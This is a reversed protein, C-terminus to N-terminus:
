EHDEGVTMEKNCLLLLKYEPQYHKETCQVKCFMSWYVELWFRATNYTGILIM